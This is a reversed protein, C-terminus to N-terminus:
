FHKELNKFYPTIEQTKREDKDCIEQGEGKLNLRLTVECDNEFPPIEYQCKLFRSAFELDLKKAERSAIKQIKETQSTKLKLFYDLNSSRELWIVRGTKIDDIRFMILSKGSHVIESKTPQLPSQAFSSFIFFFFLLSPM